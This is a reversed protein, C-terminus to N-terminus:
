TMLGSKTVNKDPCYKCVFCLFASIRPNVEVFENMHIFISSKWVKIIEEGCKKVFEWDWIVIRRINKFCDKSTVVM